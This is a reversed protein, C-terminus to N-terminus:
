LRDVESKGWLFHQFNLANQLAEEIGQALVL